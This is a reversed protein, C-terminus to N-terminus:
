QVREVVAMDTFTRQFSRHKSTGSHGICALDCEDATLGPRTLWGCDLAVCRAGVLPVTGPHRSIRHNVLGFVRRM